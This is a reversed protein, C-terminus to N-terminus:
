LVVYQTRQPAHSTSHWEPANFTLGSTDISESLHKCQKDQRFKQGFPHKNAFDTSPHSSFLLFYYISPMAFRRFFVCLHSCQRCRCINVALSHLLFKVFLRNKQIIYTYYFFFSVLFPCPRQFFLILFYIYFVISLTM